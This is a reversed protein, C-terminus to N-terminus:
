LAVLGQAAQALPEADCGCRLRLAPLARLLWSCGLRISWQRSHRSVMFRKLSVSVLVTMPVVPTTVTSKQM